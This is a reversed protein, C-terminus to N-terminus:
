DGSERGPEAALDNTRPAETIPGALTPQPRPMARARAVLPGLHEGLMEALEWSMRVRAVPRATPPGTPTAEPQSLALVLTVGHPSIAVTVGDAYIDAIDEGAM